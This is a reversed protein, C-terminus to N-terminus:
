KGLERARKFASSVASKIIKKLQNKQRFINIAAETTGGKIAIMQTLQEANKANQFLLEISGLATQEVLKKSRQLPFQRARKFFTNAVGLLRKPQWESFNKPYRHFHLDSIHIITARM